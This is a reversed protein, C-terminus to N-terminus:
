QTQMLSLPGSPRMDGPGMRLSTHFNVALKCSKNDNKKKLELFYQISLLVNHTSYNILLSIKKKDKHLFTTNIYVQPLRWLHDLATYENHELGQTFHQPITCDLLFTWIIKIQTTHVALANIILYILLYIQLYLLLFGRSQLTFPSFSVYM